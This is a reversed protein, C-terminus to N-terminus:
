KKTARDPVDIPREHKPRDDPDATLFHSRPQCLIADIDDAVLPPSRGGRPKSTTGVRRWAAKRKRPRKTAGPRM